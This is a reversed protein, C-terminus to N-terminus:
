GKLIERKTIVEKLQKELEQAYAAADKFQKADFDVLPRGADKRLQNLQDILARIEQESKAM